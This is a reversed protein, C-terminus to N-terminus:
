LMLGSMNQRQFGKLVMAGSGPVDRLCWLHKQQRDVGGEIFQTWEEIGDIQKDGLKM